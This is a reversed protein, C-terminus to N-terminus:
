SHYVRSAVIHAARVDFAEAVALSPEGPVTREYELLIRGDAAGRPATTIAREAYHLGPLRAFSDAWWERLAPKGRVFGETEPRRAKLKPSHHIADDSYLALLRELDRENFAALWARALETLAAVGFSEDGAGEQRGLRPALALAALERVNLPAELDDLGRTSAVWRHDSFEDHGEQSRVDTAAVDAVFAFNLHLGKGGAAHEEYGLLGRPTGDVVALGARTVAAFDGRLGTEEMLERQAAELPTEGAEIEGGVPLWTGLRRHRILLVRGAHRAFVSVSFARRESM